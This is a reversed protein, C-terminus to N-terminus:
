RARQLKLEFKVQKGTKDRNVSSPTVGKFYKSPELGNKVRYYGEATRGAHCADIAGVPGEGAFIEVRHVCPTEQFGSSEFTSRRVTIRAHCDEPHQWGAPITRAASGLVDDLAAGPDKLLGEIEYLCDLERAREQLAGLTEPTHKDQESM